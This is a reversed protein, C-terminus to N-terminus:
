PQRPVEFGNRFIVDSYQGSNLLVRVRAAAYESVVVDPRGDGNIDAIVLQAPQSLTPFTIQPQFTHFRNGLLLGITNSGTNSVIIDAFGDGNMDAVAVAWPSAGVPYDVKAKFTGDGNGYFVSIMSSGMNTVVLDVLGDGNLDAAVIGNPLSDTVLSPWALFTGNGLGHFVSVSNSSYNTVAFDLKGDHDFDAVAILAPTAGTPINRATQFTGDGNGMFISVSNSNGNAAVLDMKGDSNFDAAVISNTGAQATLTSGLPQIFTGDGNGMLISVNGSGHNAVALDPIGDGNFDAAAVGAPGAGVNPITYKTTPVLLAGNSNLLVSTSNSSNNSVVVDPRGNHDFDAVALYIPSAGVSYDSISGFSVATPPPLALQDILARTPSGWGTALDYGAVAPFGNSGSAIDHFASAYSSSGIGYLLPNAFGITGNGNAVSQQNALALFSSWRPAALSTGMAGSYSGNCVTAGYVDAAIDPSNRLTKSGLNSQNIVNPLTQWLPIGYTGSLYGGGSGFWASESQWSGDLNTSLVSGGVQIVYPDLAPTYYNSSGSYAGGDGSASLFTQGQAAFEQFIADASGFNNGGWSNSLIKASNDTAMQNLVSTALSGEYFLIQTLNPAMSVANAIDTIQEGDDCTACFPNSAVVGCAGSFGGVLVNTVPTPPPGGFYQTLDSQNYGNLSFIGITQGAGTLPGNGYYATRIYVDPTSSNSEPEAGAREALHELNIHPLSYNDLGEVYSVQVGLGPLSPEQNPAFFIRNTTPDRYESEVVHFANNIAAVTGTVELIHRNPTTRNVTLGNIKAWSILAAYDDRTPGFSDTFQEVSLYQHFKPSAPNYVDRLLKELDTLNRLPLSIALQLKADLALAQISTVQGASVITPVQQMQVPNDGIFSSATAEINGTLALVAYGSILLARCGRSLAPFVNRGSYSSM